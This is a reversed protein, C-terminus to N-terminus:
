ELNRRWLESLRDLIMKELRILGREDLQAVLHQADQDKM